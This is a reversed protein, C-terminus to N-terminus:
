QFTILAVGGAPVLCHDYRSLQVPVIGSPTRGDEPASVQKRTLCPQVCVAPKEFMAAGPSPRAGATVRRGQRRNSGSGTTSKNPRSVGYWRALDSVTEGERMYQSVMEMRESMAETEKWPCFAM